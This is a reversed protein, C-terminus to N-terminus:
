GGPPPDGAAPRPHRFASRPPVRIMPHTGPVISALMSVVRDMRDVTGTSICTRAAVRQIPASASRYAATASIPAPIHPSHLRHRLAALPLPTCSLGTFGAAGQGDVWSFSFDQPTVGWITAADGAHFGSVTSWIDAAPGRDDVFFTDTGRGGTLFNSGTGGDLVNTGGSVAIADDGSGSHIFWNPTSVSINLNDSTVNIYQDELHAVPGTYQQVTPAVSQGTTVDLVAVGSAPFDDQQVWAEIQARDSATIQTFFGPSGAGDLASSVLGAVYPLGDGETVWVPGGSSGEGISFGDLLTHDPNLSVNEEYTALKGSPYGTVNALGGQFDALLGMTGLGTFPRSLHIVAFDLQSQQLTILGNPNQIPYYHFFVATASGFPEAGMNYGPVVSINSATGYTSSYVVHSATLVEDPAILVGSGQVPLGGIIDTIRVVTDYPYSTPDISMSGNGKNNSPKCIPRV